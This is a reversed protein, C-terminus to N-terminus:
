RRDPESADEFIEELRERLAEAQETRAEGLESLLREVEPEVARYTREAEHETTEAVDELSETVARLSREIEGGIAAWDVQRLEAQLREATETSRDLWGAETARDLLRQAGQMGKRLALELKSSVGDVIDGEQLPSAEPDLVYADIRREREIVGRTDALFTSGRTLEAGSQQWLRLTVRARGQDLEVREVRGIEFERWYVPDGVEIEGRDRFLVHVEMGSHLTLYQWVLVGVGSAVMTALIFTAIRKM